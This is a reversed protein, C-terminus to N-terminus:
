PGVCLRVALGALVLAFVGDVWRTHAVYRSRLPPWQLVIVWLSWLSIGLGVILCWIAVPWWGPRAGSLFPACVAALFLAVKPNLLNCWLGRLFASRDGQGTQEELLVSSPGGTLCGKAMGWALRLLYLAAALALMRRFAPFREFVWAMGAVALTAHVALGCAIGLAMRLGAASGAHLATRTLLLMDPGPSFQGLVMVGAFVLLEALPSM